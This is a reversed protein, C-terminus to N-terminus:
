SREDKRITLTETEDDFEAKYDFPADRSLPFCEAMAASIKPRFYTSRGGHLEFISCSQSTVTM